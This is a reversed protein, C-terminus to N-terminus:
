EAALVVVADCKVNDKMRKKGLEAMDCYGEKIDIIYIFEDLM